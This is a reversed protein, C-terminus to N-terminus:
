QKKNTQATESYDQVIKRVQSVTSVFLYSECGTIKELEEFVKESLPGSVAITIIDGIKDLPVLQNRKMFDQPILNYVEKTVVYRSADLYPLGFQASLAAVIDLETVYELKVLAEGLLLGSKKQEKLADEVQENTILGESVLIEGLRKKTIKAINVM